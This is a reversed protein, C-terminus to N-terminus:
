GIGSGDTLNALVRIGLRKLLPHVVRDNYPRRLRYREMLAQLQRLTLSGPLVLQHEDLSLYKRFRFWGKIINNTTESQPMSLSPLLLLGEEATWYKTERNNAQKQLQQKIFHRMLNAWDSQEGEILRGFYRMKLVESTRQFSRFHLGGNQKTKTVSEWSVLAKKATNDANTGWLFVRCPAELKKYNTTHLGLGLFHYVPIAKLVHQLLLARSAWSPTRNAWKSLKGQLKRCLDQTREEETKEVRFKCGLYTIYQRLVEVPLGDEGPAKELPLAKVIEDLEADDPITMLLSNDEDSVLQQLILDEDRVERNEGDRLISM